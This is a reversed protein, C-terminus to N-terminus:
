AADAAFQDLAALAEELAARVRVLSRVADADAAAEADECAAALAHLGIGRASGKITHVADRWPRDRSLAATWGEAQARFLGAIEGQLAADGSTMMDFHVRDLVTM